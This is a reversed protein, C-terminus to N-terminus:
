QTEQIFKEEITGLNDRFKELYEKNECAVQRYAGTYLGFNIREIEGIFEDQLIAVSDKVFQLKASQAHLFIKSSLPIGIMAIEFVDPNFYTNIKARQRISSVDPLLFYKPCDISYILFCLDGMRKLVDTAFDSYLITNSYKTQALRDKLGTLEAALEPAAHPLIQRFLVDRISDDSIKKHYPNRIEGVVGMRTLSILADRYNAPPHQPESILTKIVKLNTPYRDEFNEKLDKELSVRDLDNYDTTVTNSDDESFLTKTTKKEKIELSNKDLIYIKGLTRNFFNNSQCRSVFHHNIPTSM